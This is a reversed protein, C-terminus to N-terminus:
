YVVETLFLTACQKHNLLRYLSANRIKIECKLQLVKIECKTDYRITDYRIPVILAPM